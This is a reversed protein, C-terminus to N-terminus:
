ELLARPPYLQYLLEIVRIIIFIVYESVGHIRCQLLKEEGIQKAEILLFLQEM